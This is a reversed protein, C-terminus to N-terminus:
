RALVLGTLYTCGLTCQYWIQSRTLSAPELTGDNVIAHFTSISDDSSGDVDLHLKFRMESAYHKDSKQKPLSSKQGDLLSYGELRIMMLTGWKSVSVCSV